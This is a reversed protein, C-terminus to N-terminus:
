RINIGSVPSYVKATIITEGSSFPISSALNSNGLTTGAWSQAGATKDTM